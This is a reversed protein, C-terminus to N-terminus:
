AADEAFTEVPVGFLEAAKLAEVLTLSREGRLVRYFTSPTMGLRRRVLGASMLKEDILRTIPHLKVAEDTGTM